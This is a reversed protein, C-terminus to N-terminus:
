DFIFYFVSVLFAFLNLLFFNFHVFPCFTSTHYQTYLENGISSEPNTRRALVIRITFLREPAIITIPYDLLIIGM